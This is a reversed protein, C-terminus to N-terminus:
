VPGVEGQEVHFVRDPTGFPALNPALATVVLQCNLGNVNAIFLALRSADLEAAPDDLLLMPRHEFHERLMRLQALVLAIAVLKQQGRSLVDRAAAHGVRLQVDARHPGAHTIGRGQDRPWCERLAEGLALSKPWGCQYSLEVELGSLELVAARWFPQLQELSQRRSATISEGLRIVEPDWLRAEDPHTRLAANRQRVARSYRAWTDVFAHEVHFVGWDMWRRRRPAGEEILKHVGPEIVQVPFAESLQALSEVYVGGIKGVTDAGRTVQIGLTQAIMGGTRGFAILSSEGRRILRESSRTRFSRGRGLMYLAELLSTKGSGNPGSILNLGDALELQARRVCRVNEISLYELGM